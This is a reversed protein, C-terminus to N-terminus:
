NELWAAVRRAADGRLNSYFLVVDYFHYNEGPLALATFPEPAVATTRLM